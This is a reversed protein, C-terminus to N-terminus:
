SLAPSFGPGPRGLHYGQLFDCGCDIVANLESKTEIGEAVIQMGLEHSVETMAMVIKRKVPFKDIDRILSLDLKVISPSLLSFSTLGAYGAGLDDVAIRYGMAKLREVRSPVGPIGDLTVRETV